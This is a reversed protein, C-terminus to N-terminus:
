MLVQCFCSCARSDAAAGQWVCESVQQSAEAVTEFASEVMGAHLPSAVDAPQLVLLLLLPSLLSLSLWIRRQTVREGCCPVHCLRGGRAAGARRGVQVAAAVEGWLHQQVALQQLM